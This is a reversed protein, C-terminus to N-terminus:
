SVVVTKNSPVTAAVNNTSPTSTAVTMVNVLRSQDELQIGAAKAKDLVSQIVPRMAFVLSPRGKGPNTSGIVGVIKEEDLAKKLRVRLTIEVFEPNLTCLDKITFYETNEPWSLTLNTKNKRQTKKITIPTSTITNDQTTTNDIINKM